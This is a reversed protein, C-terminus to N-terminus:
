WRGYHCRPTFNSITPNHKVTIFAGNRNLEQTNPNQREIVVSVNYQNYSTKYIGVAYKTGPHDRQNTDLWFSARGCTYASTDVSTFTKLAEEATNGAVPIWLDKGNIANEVAADELQISYEPKPFNSNDFNSMLYNIVGIRMYEEDSLPKTTPNAHDCPINGFIGIIGCALIIVLVTFVIMFGYQKKREEPM